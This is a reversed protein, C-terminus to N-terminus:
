NALNKKLQYVRVEDILFDHQTNFNKPGNKWYAGKRRYTPSLGIVLSCKRWSTPAFNVHETQTRIEKGDLYYVIKEPTWLISWTHMQTYISPDDWKYFVADNKVNENEDHYYYSSFFDYKRDNAHDLEFADIEPVRGSPSVLWLSPYLSRDEPLQLDVEFLGYLWGTHQEPKKQWQDDEIKQTIRTHIEAGEYLYYWDKGDINKKNWAALKSVKLRLKGEEVLLNDASFKQVLDVKRGREGKKGLKVEKYKNLYEGWPSNAQWSGSNLLDHIDKNEFDEFFVLSYKSKDLNQQAKAANWLFLIGILIRGIVKM